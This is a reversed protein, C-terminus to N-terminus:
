LGYKEISCTKIHKAYNLKYRFTEGCSCKYIENSVRHDLKKKKWEKIREEPTM